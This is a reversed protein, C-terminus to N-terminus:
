GGRNMEEWGRRIARAAMPLSDDELMRAVESAVERTMQGGARHWTRMQRTLKEAEATLVRAQLETAM